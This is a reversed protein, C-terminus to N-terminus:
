AKKPSTKSGSNWRGVLQNFYAPVNVEFSLQKHSFPHNFSIHRALLALRKRSDHKRGYRQDGVIPHGIESLHVRIQHKRGTLLDIELLSYDPTEKLVKYATHSLKGLTTDNTSYVNYSVENEVLYTSITDSAKGIKGHVVALYTKKTEHWHEILYFKAEESKAFILLGSADRDLRHVLYLQKFSKVYGKRVYDTLAYHATKIREQKTSTTLLGSPKDAILIDRDEYVITLGKPLYKTTPKSLKPM